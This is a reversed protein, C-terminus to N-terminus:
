IIELELFLYYLLAFSPTQTYHWTIISPNVHVCQSLDSKQYIHVTVYSFINIKFARGTVWEQRSTEEQGLSVVIWQFCSNEVEFHVRGRNGLLLPLLFDLSSPLFHCTESFKHPGQLITARRDLWLVGHHWVEAKTQWRWLLHETLDEAYSGGRWAPQHGTIQLSWPCSIPFKAARKTCSTKEPESFPQPLQLQKKQVDSWVCALPAGLKM